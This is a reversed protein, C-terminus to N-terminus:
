DLLTSVCASASANLVTPNAFESLSGHFCPNERYIYIYIYIYWYTNTVFLRLTRSREIGNYTSRFYNLNLATDSSRTERKQRFIAFAHFESYRCLM